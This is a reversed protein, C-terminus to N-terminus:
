FTPLIQVHLNARTEALLEGLGLLRAIIVQAPEALLATCQDM